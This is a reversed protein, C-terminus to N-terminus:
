VMIDGAALFAITSINTYQVIGEKNLSCSQVNAHTSERKTPIKMVKDFFVKMNVTKSSMCM